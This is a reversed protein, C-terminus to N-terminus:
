QYKNILSIYADDNDILDVIEYNSAKGLYLSDIIRLDPVLFVLKHNDLDGKFKDIFIELSHRSLAIVYNFCSRDLRIKDASLIKPIRVYVDFVKVTAGRDSLTDFIENRGDRGKIVIIEQKTVDQFQDMNLLDNSSYNDPPFYCNNGILNEVHQATIKGIAFFASNNKMKVGKFFKYSCKVSNKSQFIVKDTIKLHAILNKTESSVPTIETLPCYILKGGLSSVKKTLKEIISTESVIIVNM